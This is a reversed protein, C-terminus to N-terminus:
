PLYQSVDNIRILYVHYSSIKGKTEYDPLQAWDYKAFINSYNDFIEKRRVLMDQDYRELEVLGMAASIDTM